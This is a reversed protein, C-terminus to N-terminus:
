TGPVAVIRGGALAEKLAQAQPPEAFSAELPRVLLGAAPRLSLGWLLIGAVLVPCWAKGRGKRALWFAALLLLLVICGPPFLWSCFFKVVFIM